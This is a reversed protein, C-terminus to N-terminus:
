FVSSPHCFPHRAPRRRGGETKQRRDETKQLLVNNPTLDRHVVGREHAYHIARALPELLEAALRPPQPAGCLAASLSGGAVYELSFYPRGDHAGVEYLRVINPHELRAAAEAETRFRALENPGAGEGARIMKLAVLRNPGAQLALYVVGMGGRGLEKLVEYGPVAPAAAPAATRPAGALTPPDAPEAEAELLAHVEFLDRLPAALHPFRGLYEALGPAEGREERLLVEHNLLDLLGAGDGGLEPHAALYSEVLPREGARWRLSQDDQLREALPQTDSM